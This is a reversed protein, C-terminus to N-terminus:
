QLIAMPCEEVKDFVIAEVAPSQMEEAEIRGGNGHQLFRVYTTETPAVRNPEIAIRHPLGGKLVLRVGASAAASHREASQEGAHAVVPQPPSGPWVSSSVPISLADLRGTRRITSIVL